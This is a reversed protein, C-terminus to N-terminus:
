DKKPYSQTLTKYTNAANEFDKKISLLDGRTKLLHESNPDKELAKEV